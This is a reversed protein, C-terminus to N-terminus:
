YRAMEGDIRRCCRTGETKQGLGMTYRLPNSVNPSDHRLIDAGTSAPISEPNLKTPTSKFWDAGHRPKSRTVTSSTVPVPSARSNPTGSVVFIYILTGKSIVSV